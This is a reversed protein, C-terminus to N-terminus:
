SDGAALDWTWSLLGTHDTTLGRLGTMGLHPVTQFGGSVPVTTFYARRWPGPLQLQFGTNFTCTATYSVDSAVYAYGHYVGRKLSLWLEADGLAISSEAVSSSGSVTCSGSDGSATYTLNGSEPKYYARAKDTDYRHFAFRVTGEVRETVGPMAWAQTSAGSVTGTLSRPIVDVGKIIRLNNGEKSEAVENAIDAM